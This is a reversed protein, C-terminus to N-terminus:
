RMLVMSTGSIWPSDRWAGGEVPAAWDSGVVRLVGSYPKRGSGNWVSTFFDARAAGVPRWREGELAHVVTRSRSRAHALNKTVSRSTRVVEM